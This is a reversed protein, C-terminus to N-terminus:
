FQFYLFESVRSLNMLSIISIVLTLLIWLLNPKWRLIKFNIKESEFIIEQSNPFALVIIFLSCLYLIYYPSMFHNVNGFDVGIASIYTALGDLKLQYLNPLIIGNNGVMGELIIMAGQFSEARFFV